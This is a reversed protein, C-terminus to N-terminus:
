KVDIRALIIGGVLSKPNKATRGGRTTAIADSGGSSTVITSVSPVKSWGEIVSVEEVGVLGAVGVKLERGQKRAGVGYVDSRHFGSNRAAASGVDSKGGAGGVRWGDAAAVSGNGMKPHIIIETRIVQPSPDGSAIQGIGAFIRRSPHSRADDVFGDVVEKRSGEIIKPITGKPTRLKRRIGMVRHLNADVALDDGFGFFVGKHKAQKSQAEDEEAALHLLFALLRM